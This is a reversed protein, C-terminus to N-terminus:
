VSSRHLFIFPFVSLAVLPIDLWDVLALLFSEIMATLM